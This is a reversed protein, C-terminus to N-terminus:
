TRGQGILIKTYVRNYAFTGAATAALLDSSQQNNKNKEKQQSTFNIIQLTKAFIKPLQQPHIYMNTIEQRLPKHLNTVKNQLTILNISQIYIKQLNAWKTYMDYYFINKIIM